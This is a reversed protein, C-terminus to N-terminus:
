RLAPTEPLPESLHCQDQGKFGGAVVAGHRQDAAIPLDQRLRDHASHRAGATRRRPGPFRRGRGHRFGAPSTRCTSCSASMAIPSTSAIAAVAPGPQDAPHHDAQQDALAPARASLRQDRDIMEFAVREARPQDITFSSKGIQQQEGAAAMALQEFHAADAVIAPERGGDVVGRALREVLRGLQEAQAIRRGPSRPAPWPRRDWATGSGRGSTPVLSGCKLKAPRFAATCRATALPFM